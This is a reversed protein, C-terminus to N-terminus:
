RKVFYNPYKELIENQDLKYRSLHKEMLEKALEKNKERIANLIIKHDSVIKIEKVSFLSLARIRDFHGQMGAMLNFIREKNCMRFLAHHFENDLELIKNPSLNHLYFEQLQINHNLEELEEETITDCLAEVVAKELTLRLFVTEEVLDLDILSIISGKQPFVQVLDWKKLDLIAERIPTRSVGLEKALDNESVLSGPELKLSIINQRIERLAYERATENPEQKTVVM